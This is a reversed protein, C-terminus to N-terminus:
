AKPKIKHILVNNLDPDKVVAMKCTPYDQPELKFVIKKEKLTKIFEDFNDVEFAVVAGDQSPKWDPSCGIAFTGEGLNYEVWNESGAFEASPVLGLAGEYFARSAKMDTIAYITFAIKKIM